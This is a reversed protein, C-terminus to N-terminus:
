MRLALQMNDPLARYIAKADEHSLIINIQYDQSPFYEKMSAPLSTLKNGSLIDSYYVNTGANDLMELSDAQRFQLRPVSVIQKGASDDGPRDSPYRSHTFLTPDIQSRETEEGAYRPGGRDKCKRHDVPCIAGHFVRDSVNTLHRLENDM